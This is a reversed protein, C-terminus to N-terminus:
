KNIGDEAKVGPQIVVYREYYVIQRKYVDVEDIFQLGGQTFDEDVAGIAVIIDAFKGRGGSKKKYVERM